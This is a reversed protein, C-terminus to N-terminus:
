EGQNFRLGNDKLVRDLERLSNLGFNHLKLFDCARLKAIDELTDVGLKKCASVIRSGLRDFDYRTLTKKSPVAIDGGVKTIIGGLGKLDTLAEETSNYHGADDLHNIVQKSPSVGYTNVDDNGLKWYLRTKYEDSERDVRGCFQQYLQQDIADKKNVGCETEDAGKVTVEGRFTRKIELVLIDRNPELSAVRKAEIVASEESEHKKRPISGSTNYVLWKGKNDNNSM